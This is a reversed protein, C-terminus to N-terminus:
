RPPNEAPQNAANGYNEKEESLYLEKLKSFSEIFRKATAKGTGAADALLVIIARETLGQKKMEGMAEILKPITEALERANKVSKRM